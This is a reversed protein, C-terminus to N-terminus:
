GNHKEKRSKLEDLVMQKDSAGEEEDYNDSCGHNIACLIYIGADKNLLDLRALLDFTAQQGHNFGHAYAEEIAIKVEEETFM